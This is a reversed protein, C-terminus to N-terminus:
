QKGSEKTTIEIVGNKAKEGYKEIAAEGKIVNMSQIKEPAIEKIDLDTIKGDVVFLPNKDTANFKTKSTIIIVGEKGKEGYLQTASENKLVEMSAMEDPNINAEEMSNFIKGDVVVLAKDMKKNAAKKTTIIVVGNKGKEGYLTTASEDKLVSIADMKDPQINKITKVVEGDVVYLPEAMRGDATKIIVPANSKNESTKRINIKEKNKSTIIIVGNKGKEGYMKSASENKLVDISEIDDPNIDDMNDIPTGDLLVLPELNGGISRIKLYSNPDLNTLGNDKIESSSSEENEKLTVNIKNKKKVPIEVKEYGTLSFILTENKEELGIVYNGDPDSITGMPKGKIIVNVSSLPDGQKNTIQGSITQTYEEQKQITVSPATKNEKLVVNNTFNGNVTINQKEFGAKSYIIDSNGKDLKLEYNGNQDTITGVPKGKILVAVGSLPESSENTIKGSVTMKEFSTNTGALTNQITEPTQLVSPIEAKFEKNSLGIILITLVPIIVLQKVIAYKNETKQKMMIIRNKLQSGNLANLFPAIGKKDALSVMALQYTERDNKQTIYDDTIFELNNKVADKLLWAFPNFWQMFFLLEAVLIDFTHNEKKHIFEHELILNLHPHQLTKVSIVVKNFFSFPHIDDSSICVGFGIKNQQDSKRIISLAKFYGIFFRSIFGMAGVVLLTFLIHFWDYSVNTSTLGPTITEDVNFNFASPLAEIKKTLTITILPILYSIIMSAPLYIRSFVFQKQKEFLFLYVLYFAGMALAVKGLYFIFAEM